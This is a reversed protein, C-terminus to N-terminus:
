LEASAGGFRYGIVAGATYGSTDVSVRNPGVQVRVRDAVWEYGGWVGAFVGNELAWNLNATIGAGFIWKSESERDAWSQLVARSGDAHNRFFQESRQVDVDVYNLSIKPTVQLTLQDRVAVDFRPGLWLSLIDTETRIHIDNQAAWAHSSARHVDRDVNRETESPRHVIVVGDDDFDSEFPAPPIDDDVEHVYIDTIRDQIVVRDERIQEMYTTGGMSSRANGIWALGASLDMRVNGRDPLPYGAVVQLGWGDFTDDFHAARDLSVTRKSSIGTSRSVSRRQFTLTEQDADYQEDNQYGWIETLGDDATIPDEFVYGDDYQRDRIQTIDDPNLPLGPLRTPRMSSIGLDQVYSSGTAKAKMGGRYVPGVEIWLTEATAWNSFILSLGVVALVLKLSRKLSM